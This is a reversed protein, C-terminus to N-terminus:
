CITGGAAVYDDKYLVLAQGPTAARVPSTFKCELTDEDIMSVTCPTGKHSYRIKGILEENNFSEIGMFNINNAYVKTVFLEENEGVVVQNNEADIGTVFVPHGMALGLGKRQGITYNIIGKHQGIIKGERNIFNGSSIKETCFRKIFAAYDGDPIFCIDQSDPKNAVDLGIENAISRIEDKTYEGIPMLTRKLQEQRLSYLAYTQDKTSTVSNTIAFRGNDLQKIKSYHGTAVYDAHIDLADDLLAEWKIKPNCMNCPNPTKGKLYEGIFYDVVKDKFQKRFDVVYHPISLRNAVQKADEVMQPLLMPSTVDGDQWTHMTVGVVDYGAKKLLYACVSSDVGGSMGIIVRKGM